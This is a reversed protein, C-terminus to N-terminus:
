SEAGGAVGGLRALGQKIHGANEGIKNLASRANECADLSGRQEELLVLEMLAAEIALQNEYLRALMDPISYQEAM